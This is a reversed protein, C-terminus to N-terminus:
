HINIGALDSERTSAKKFLTKTIGACKREWFFKATLKDFKM